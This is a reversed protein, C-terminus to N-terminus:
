PSCRAPCLPMGADRPARTASSRTSRRCRSSSPDAASISYVAQTMGLSDCWRRRFHRSHPHPWRPRRPHGPILERFMDFSSVQKGFVLTVEGKDNLDGKKIRILTDDSKGKGLTASHVSPDAEVCLEFSVRDCLLLVVRSCSLRFCVVTLWSGGFTGVRLALHGGLCMGTAAIRGNCNPLSM